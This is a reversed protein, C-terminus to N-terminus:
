SKRVVAAYIGNWWLDKDGNYRAPLIESHLVKYSLQKFAEETGKRVNDHKHNWDDVICIFEDDLIDNYYTFAKIHDEVTHGGDFFYINKKKITDLKVQFCDNEIFQFKPILGQGIRTETNSKFEEKPGKFDSFNEICTADVHMNSYLASILTSGKWTGIELYRADPLSCVNNLLHRVKTSSMGEIRLIDSSNPISSVHNTADIICKKLFDVYNM